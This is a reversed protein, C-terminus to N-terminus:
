FLNRLKRVAGLHSFTKSQSVAAHNSSVTVIKPDGLFSFLHLLLPRASQGTGSLAMQLFGFWVQLHSKWPRPMQEWKSSIGFYHRNRRIVGRHMILSSKARLTEKIQQKINVYIAHTIFYNMSLKKMQQEKIIENAAHIIFEKM